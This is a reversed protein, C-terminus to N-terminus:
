KQSTELAKFYLSSLSDSYNDIGFEAAKERANFGLTSRLSNDSVLLRIAATLQEINGPEVLLGTERHKIVEGIGGVPTTIISLGWSMAELLAMPLGENYSPLVFGHVQALLENKQTSNIWGLFNIDQSIGLKEALKLTLEIEGSGAIILKAPIQCNQKFAAYSNLLDYIGKRQNIKGLFLLKIPQSDDKSPAVIPYEVPNHLVIVKDPSLQCSSVYYNRWSQSLVILYSTKQLVWNILQKSLHSLQEYFLHFEAGHTHIVVPKGFAYATTAFIMTRWASGRESMHCHLIDVRNFLLEFFLKIWALFFVQIVQLKSPLRISGPLNNWSAIHDIDLDKVHNLILRSVTGMGGEEQLSPGIMLVKPTWVTSIKIANHPKLSDKILSSESIGQSNM